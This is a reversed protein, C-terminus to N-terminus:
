FSGRMGLLRDRFSNYFRMFDVISHTRKTELTDLTEELLSILPRNDYSQTGEALVGDPTQHVGALRLQDDDICALRTYIKDILGSPNYEFSNVHRSDAMADPTTHHLQNIVVKLGHSLNMARKKALNSLSRSMTNSIPQNNRIPGSFFNCRWCRTLSRLEVASM